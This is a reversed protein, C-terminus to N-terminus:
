TLILEFSSWKTQFQIMKNFVALQAWKLANLQLGKGPIPHRISMNKFFSKSECTKDLIEM